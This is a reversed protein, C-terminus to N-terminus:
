DVVKVLTMKEIVTDSCTISFGTGGKPPIKKLNHFFVMFVIAV